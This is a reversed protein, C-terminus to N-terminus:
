RRIGRRGSRRPIPSKKARISKSLKNESQSNLITRNGAWQEAAKEDQFNLVERSQAWQEPEYGAGRVPPDEASVLHAHRAHTHDDELSPM